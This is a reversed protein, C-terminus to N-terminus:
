GSPNDVECHAAVGTLELLRRVVPSPRQIVPRCGEPLFLATRAILRAAACDMFDVGSMDFVLRQPRGYRIQALHWCLLPTTTPDLEGRIVVIATETTMAVEVALPPERPGTM